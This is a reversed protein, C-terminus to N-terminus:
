PWFSKNKRDVSFHAKYAPFSGKGLRTIYEAETDSISQVHDNMKERRRRKGMMEPDLKGYFKHGKIKDKPSEDQKLEDLYDQELVLKRRYSEKSADARIISSDIFHYDEQVERFM